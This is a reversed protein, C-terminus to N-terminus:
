PLTVVTASYPPLTVACSGGTCTVATAANPTFTGDANVTRGQLQIGTTSVLTPATLRLLSGTGSRGANLATQATDWGFNILLVRNKGDTGKITHAVLNSTTNTTSITTPLVSGYGTLRTMLLGYYIPQASYQNPGVECLPTYTNCVNDLAGHFYMGRAGNEVGDLIYGASWLASAYTNSVNPIGGCAASNVESMVLQMSNNKATTAGSAVGSADSTRKAKSVLNTATGNPGNCNSLTYHHTNLFPVKGKEASAYGANWGSGATDPGSVPVGPAQARVVALCKNVDTVYASVNYSSPRYANAVFLDPENGCVMSKLRSGLTSSVAAADATTNAANYHALNTSYVYKWGTADALRAMGALAAPTAKAYTRDVSNGGIRVTGTGITKLLQPLNGKADFKGSNVGGLGNRPDSEFSLGLYGDGITAKPTAALNVTVTAQYTTAASAMQQGAVSAGIALVVAAGVGLTRRPSM